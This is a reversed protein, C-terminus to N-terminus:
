CKAAAASALPLVIARGPSQGPLSFIIMLYERKELARNINLTHLPVEMNNKQMYIFPLRAKLPGDINQVMFIGITSRMQSRSNIIYSVFFTPKKEQLTSM